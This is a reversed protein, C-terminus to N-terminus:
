QDPSDAPVNAAGRATGSRMGLHKELLMAVTMPGVGGPVPTIAGATKRVEDFDVDGVIRGKGDAGHIRTIGVDIVIAGPKIWSAKVLGPVGTASVVIDANRTYAPVDHTDIHTVAVSCRANLFLQAAPRGVVTSSGIVVVDCGTVDPCVRRVLHLCGKPTCPVIGPEDVALLGANVPHFGDVDKQPNIRQM